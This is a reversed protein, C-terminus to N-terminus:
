EDPHRETSRRGDSSRPLAPPPFGLNPAAGLHEVTGYLVGIAAWVFMLCAAGCLVFNITRFVWAGGGHAHARDRPTTPFLSSYAVMGFFSGFFWAVFLVLAGVGAKLILGLLSLDM